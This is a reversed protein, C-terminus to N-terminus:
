RHAANVQEQILRYHFLWRGQDDQETVGSRGPRFGDIGRIVRELASLAVFSRAYGTMELNGDHYRLATLWAQDPLKEAFGLLRAQWLRTEERKQQRARQRQWQQQRALLRQLRSILAAQLEQEAQQWVRYVQERAAIAKCAATWGMTITVLTIMFMVAWFHLCRRQRQRRWPLFNVPGM